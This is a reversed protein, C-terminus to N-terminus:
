TKRPDVLRGMSRKIEDLKRITAESGIAAYTLRRGEWTQGYDFIKMRAPAAAALAEMYQILGAHSTIRDGTDYHLVQRVTPVKSDYNTGPWFDPRYQASLTAASAVAFLLVAVRIM